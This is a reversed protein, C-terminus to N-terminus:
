SADDARWSVVTRYADASAWHIRQPAVQRFCDLQLISCGMRKLSDRKDIDPCLRHLAVIAQLVLLMTPQSDLVANPHLRHLGLKEDGLLLLDFLDLVCGYLSIRADASNAAVVTAERVHAMLLARFSEAGPKWVVTPEDPGTVSRRGRHSSLGQKWIQVALDSRRAGSAARLLQRWSADNPELGSAVLQRLVDQARTVDGARACARLLANYCALDPQVGVARMDQFVLFVKLLLTNSDYRSPFPRSSTAGSTRPLNSDMLSSILETYVEIAKTESPANPTPVWGQSVNSRSMRKHETRALREARMMLSTYMVESPAIGNAKMYRLIALTDATRGERLLSDTLCGCTVTNPYVRFNPMAYFLRLATGLRGAKGCADIAATWAGVANDLPQKRHQRLMIRLGQLALDSRQCRGAADILACYTMGNPQVRRDKMEQLLAFALSPDNQGAAVSTKRAVTAILNTYTRADPLLGSAELDAKTQLAADLDGAKLCADLVTNYTVINPQIVHFVDPGTGTNMQLLVHRASDLDALKAHANLLINVSKADPVLKGPTSADMSYSTINLISPSALVTQSSSALMLKWLRLAVRPKGLSNARSMLTSYTVLTPVPVSPHWFPRFSPRSSLSPSVSLYHLKQQLSAATRMKGFLRLARLLEGSDGLDALAANCERTTPFLVLETAAPRASVTDKSVSLSEQMSHITDRLSQLARSVQDELGDRSPPTSGKRRNLSTPHLKRRKSM